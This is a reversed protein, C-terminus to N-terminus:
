ELVQWLSYGREERILKLHQNVFSTWVASEDENLQESVFSQSRISDALIYNIQHSSLKQSLPEHTKASSRIWELLYSASFHGGSFVLPHYLSFRNGTFLLYIKQDASINQNIYEIMPYEAVQQNLYQSNSIEGRLYPLLKEQDVKEGAYLAFFVVHIALLTASLAKTVRTQKFLWDLLASTLFIIPAMIPILYRIRLPNLFVALVFYLSTLGLSFAFIRSGRLIFATILSLILIPSLVGDFKSPQNDKGEFFVRLPLLAIELASEQYILVRQELPKFNPLDAPREIAPIFLNNYLPYIPNGTLYYNRILWPSYIILSSAAIIIVYTFTERLARRAMLFLILLGLSLAFPLGNYKTSLALGLAIGTVLAVIIKSSKSSKADAQALMLVSFFAISCYLALGCDVLPIAALRHLIPLTTALLFAVAGARASKLVETSGLLLTLSFLLQLAWHYPAPGSLIGRQFFGAYALNILMPYYSWEHWDPSYIEGRAVWWQPVALHHILADRFTVPLTSEILSLALATIGILIALKYGTSLNRSYSLLFSTGFGIACALCFLHLIFFGSYLASGLGLYTGIPLLPILIVGALIVLIYFALAPEKNIDAAKVKLLKLM